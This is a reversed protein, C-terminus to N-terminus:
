SRPANRAQEYLKQLDANKWEIIAQARLRRPVEADRADRRQNFRQRSRDRVKEFPQVADTVTEVKFIEYGGPM